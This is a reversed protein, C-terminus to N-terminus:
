PPGTDKERPRDAGLINNSAKTLLVYRETQNAIRVWSMSLSELSRVESESKALGRLHLCEAAQERCRNATDM